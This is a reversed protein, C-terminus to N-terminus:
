IWEIKLLYALTNLQLSQSIVDTKHEIAILVSIVRQM